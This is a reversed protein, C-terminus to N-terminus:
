RRKSRGKGKDHPVLVNASDITSNGCSDTVQYTITYVRGSGKGSREARLRFAYDDVIVIDDVTNGDGKGNDPENSTVGLLTVIPSPDFNDSVVVSVEADVYKHNAPWLVNPTVSLSDFQPPVLECLDLGVLVPDHDSSRYPDPAYIADQNPGKFRTDYNILDPEDANIHWVSLGTVVEDLAANALAYDFYGIRGDFLYGYAAEGRYAAILDVYGGDIFADIPDEKDYSNLDGIILANASGSDTPDTAIWDVLAQAALTRTLNCNGSGDGTNPDGVDDCNSGKSKLHNVAITVSGGAANDMFTQALAPRNLSDNFRGDVSSDLIAFDGIPTVTEPKFIMAVRIADSGIAGTAIYDFTGAGLADNLGNVLDAVAADDNDNEIEILGVVDADLTAIAAIVKDRQRTFEEADDAGRCGQNMAPGCISGSDDITSFYNLVNFSAVSVTGGVDDPEATRPNDDFYLAGQTPQVRYQGFAYQLVGTVNQVRGGGRFLNSLDFEAGNPHLAPDPNSATRGDDLAIRDLLYAAQSQDIEPTGPEFEATPTLRRQSGLLIEGFRDFNFYEVILLSQPFTVYMGEFPEFDDLSTVPLALQSVAPLPSGNSRVVIDVTPTIQTMGNFESVSGEVLVVDGIAVDVTPSSGDFVFIGESTAPDMDADADEEQLFFGNLDGNTGFGDQHDAVVVGEIIVTSGALPSSAGSGQVEHIRVFAPPAIGGCGNSVGPTGDPTSFNHINDAFTGAPADSCRFTGSPLFSGDPGVSVVGYDFDSAVSDRLNIADVVLDWPMSDLVGNNDSDLDDGTAGTFNSVLFYTATSNEFTNNAIALEGSVGYASTGAPSIALWFGDAPISQGALSIARDIRGASSGFDSEVGILTLNSLDEGPTGQLEFFEWDTSSTSVQIENIYIGPIGCAPRNSTGPTGDPSSFNHIDGAFTGLPADGCRYAGSPLFTGDPGISTVGYDVDNAGNDRLNIADVVVGWPTVDLVGDDNTDVDNGVAGTFGTVLFYTATSNEFTNNSIAFEGSVGYESSGAPSIALWFGDEPISQGALSIARDIRGTSSGDDSEIGVLTLDSLDTGPAGRLEVFEWDTGSTSVQIENIYVDPAQASAASVHLLLFLPALLSLRFSLLNTIRTMDIKRTPALIQTACNATIKHLIQSFRPIKIIYFLIKTHNVSFVRFV